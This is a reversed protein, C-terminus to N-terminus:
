LRSWVKLYLQLALSFVYICLSTSLTVHDRMIFTFIKFNQYKGYFIQTRQKAAIIDDIKEENCDLIDNPVVIELEADHIFIERPSM